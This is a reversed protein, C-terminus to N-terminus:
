YSPKAKLNIPPSRFVTEQFLDNIELYTQTFLENQDGTTNATASITYLAHQLNVLKSITEILQDIENRFVGTSGAKKLRQLGEEHNGTNIIEAAQTLRVIPKTFVTGLRMGVLMM